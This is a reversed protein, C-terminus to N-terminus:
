EELLVDWVPKCRASFIGIHGISKLGYSAPDIETFSTKASPFYRALKKVQAPPIMVDDKTGIIRVPCKIKELDPKPLAGGWECEYFVPSTCWRRWQWFVGAPLNSKMGLLWGPLYGLVLTALPGLLFWFMIVQLFFHWPHARWYAPGSNVATHSIVRDANAHYPLCFGGLSHGIIKVGLDPFQQLAYDLVASQDGIGWDAMTVPSNRLFAPSNKETGRYAYILVTQNHNQALWEAFPKYYYVPVGTAGHIITVASPKECEYLFASLEIGDSTPIHVAEM